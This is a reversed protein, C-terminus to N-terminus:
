VPADYIDDEGHLVRQMISFQDTLLVRNRESLQKCELVMKELARWQEELTARSAGKLQAMLQAMNARPGLLARVQDVRQARRAQLADVLAGIQGALAALRAGQHHLTADFQQELLQRLNQYAPVDDAVGRLLASLLARRAPASM